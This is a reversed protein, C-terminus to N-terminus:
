QKLTYGDLYVVIDVQAFGRIQKGVGLAVKRNKVPIDVTVYSIRRRDKISLEPSWTETHIIHNTYETSNKFVRAYILAYSDHQHGVNKTWAKTKITLRVSEVNEPLEKGESFALWCQSHVKADNTNCRVRPHENSHEVEDKWTIGAIINSHQSPFNISTAGITLDAGKALSVVLLLLCIVIFKGM